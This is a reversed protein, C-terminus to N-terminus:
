YRGTVIFAAWIYPPYGERILRLQATRLSDALSKKRELQRYFLELLYASARDDVFWLTSVVSPSGAHLFARQLASISKGEPDKEPLTDCGSLVVARGPFRLRFIDLVSLIGDQDAGPTLLLGSLLPADSNFQGRVAFHLIDYNAMMEGAKTESAQEKLLVTDGQKRIRKLEEVAHHLDLTEDELDPDGFALIRLGSHAKKTVVEELLGATPLHFISFGEVLSKGRYNMAAFPFYSLCDDPIFGIRDGSVFPIVPKLLLDYVRRSLSETKRRDRSYISELYSFVLGRLEARTLDIKVLQVMNQHIAWVYLGTDTVFYSFITTDADLLHQLAAPDIGHVSVLPLLREGETGFQGLLEDYMTKVGKLRELLEGTHAEGSVNLIRRRIIRFIEGLEAEKLLLEREAPTAGIDQGALLNTTMLAKAKEAATLAEGARGVAALMEVLSEYVARRQLRCVEAFMEAEPGSRQVSLIADAEQLTAIAENRRGIEHAYRALLLRAWIQYSAAQYHDARERLTEAAMLGESRNVGALGLEGLFLLSRIEGERFGTARASEAAYVLARLSETANGRMGDALGMFARAEAETRQFDFAPIFTGLMTKRLEENMALANQLHLSSEGAPRTESLPTEQLRYVALLRPLYESLVAAMGAALEADRKLRLLHLDTQFVTNDQLSLSFLERARNFDGRLLALRGDLYEPFARLPPETWKEGGERLLALAERERGTQMLFLIKKSFVLAEGSSDKKVAFAKAARDLFHLARGEDGEAEYQGALALFIQPIRWDDANASRLLDLYEKPIDLDYPAQHEAATKKEPVPVTAKKEVTKMCGSLCLITCILIAFWSQFPM